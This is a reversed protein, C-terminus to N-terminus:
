FDFESDVAIDLKGNEFFKLFAEAIDPDFQKGREFAIIELAKQYGLSKRYPRDSTMADFADAISIIRSEMPIEEGKLGDPYGRGNWHEHHHKVLIAIDKMVEVENLVKAGLITHKEIEKREELTLKGPKNLVAGRVGIKGIDHLVAALKIREIFDDPFGLGQAIKVSYYTVRESHGRTYPDKLEITYALAKVTQYFNDKLQRLLQSNKIAAGLINAVRKVTDQSDKSDFYGYKKSELDLVGLIEGEWIIPVAIESKFEEIGMFRPDNETNSVVVPKKIMAAYGSIGVGVKLKDPISHLKNRTDISTNVVLTDNEKNYSLLAILPVDFILNLKELSLKILNKINKYSVLDLSIDSLIKLEKLTKKLNYNVIELESYAKVLNDHEKELNEQKEILQKNKDDLDTYANELDEFVSELEEYSAELEENKKKIHGIMSFFADYLSDIESIGTHKTLVRPDINTPNKKISMSINKLTELPQVLSNILNKSSFRIVIFIVLVILFVILMESYDVFLNFKFPAVVYLVVDGVLNNERVFYTNGKVNIQNENDIDKRNKSIYDLLTMDEINTSILKDGNMYLYKFGISNNSENSVSFTDTYIDIGSVGFLKGNKYLPDLMTVIRKGTTYDKMPGIFISGSFKSSRLLSRIQSDSSYFVDSKSAILKGNSEYRFFIDNLNFTPDNQLNQFTSRLFNEFTIDDVKGVLSNLTDLSYVVKSYKEIFLRSTSTIKTNILYNMYSNYFHYNFFTSMILIFVAIILFVSIYYKKFIKRLSETKVFVEM